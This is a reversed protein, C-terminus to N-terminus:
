FKYKSDLWELRLMITYYTDIDINLVYYNNIM